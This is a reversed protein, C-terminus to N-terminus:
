SSSSWGNQGSPSAKACMENPDHVVKEAQVGGCPTCLKTNPLVDLRALPIPNGCMSCDRPEIHTYDEDDMM